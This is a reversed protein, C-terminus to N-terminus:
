LNVALEAIRQNTTPRGMHRGALKTKSKHVHCQTVHLFLQGVFKRRPRLRTSREGPGEVVLVNGLRTIPSIWVGRVGRQSRLFRRILNDFPHPPTFTNHPEMVGSPLVQRGLKHDHVGQM